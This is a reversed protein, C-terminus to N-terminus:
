LDSTMPVTALFARSGANWRDGGLRVALCHWERTGSGWRVRVAFTEGNVGKVYFINARYGTKLLVGDKGGWQNKILSALPGLFAKVDEFVHGEPLEGKIEADNASQALDAHGIKTDRTEMVGDEDAALIFNQFNDSVWLGKSTKFFDLPNSKYGAVKHATLTILRTEDPVLGALFKKLAKPNDIWGQKVDTQMEPVNEFMRAWFKRDQKDM